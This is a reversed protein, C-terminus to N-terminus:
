LGVTKENGESAAVDEHSNADDQPVAKKGRVERYRLVLFGTIVALWYLNYALVSGM